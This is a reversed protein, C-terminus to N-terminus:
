AHEGVAEPRAPRPQAAVRGAQARKEERFAVRVDRRKSAMRVRGIAPRLGRRYVVVHGPPLNSLTAPPLVPVMKVDAGTPKGHKDEKRQKEPREGALGSWMGLDKPDKTSGFVMAAGSNNLIVAADDDGWRSVVQRFSQFLAVITIGRGGMDATWKQLPVPSILAAEDLHLQLPPDLRGSPSANAIRRAERAIHGTFACVLPAAQTEDGGLIYITGREALLAEVDLPTAGTSAAVAAPSTLWGLAPMITSTTSTRTNPNTTVFQAIDQVYAAATAGSRRLLGTVERQTDEPDSVWRLVDAMERGGLAAAHLYATLVRRAQQEWFERDKGGPAVGAAVLDTARDYATVPDACGTLPDFSVTSKIGGLGVANFVYVPGRQARLRATIQHLDPRTSTAVCAGPADIVRGAGWQTKGTRPGGFVLTVDEVSAWMRLWGVRALLVGVEHTRLRLRELRTLQALSPRVVTAKRRVALGSSHRLIRSGSAVGQSRRGQSSWRSVTSSSRTRRFVLGVLLGAAALVALVKVWWPQFAVLLALGGLGLAMLGAGALRFKLALLSWWWGRLFFLAVVILAVCLGGVILTM